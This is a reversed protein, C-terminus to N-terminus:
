PHPLARQRTQLEEPPRIQVKTSTFFTFRTGRSFALMVRNVQKVLVFTNLKSMKKKLRERALMVRAHRRERDRQKQVLLAIVKTCTFCTFQTGRASASTDGV